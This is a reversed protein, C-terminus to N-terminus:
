GSDETDGKGLNILRCGLAALWQRQHNVMVITLQTQANLASLLDILTQCREPDLASTPEDLLLIEPELLLGRLITVWQRQGLSLQWERRQLWSEPIAGAQYAWDRRRQSEAPPLKQLTLPYTLTEAVTLGLLKPEQPVLAIRRRLQPIPYTDLPQGRYFIRGQSPEQLRNLLRLLSTKGSGSSGYIGLCEGRNIELSLPNLMTEGSRPDSLGVQALKLIPDLSESTV